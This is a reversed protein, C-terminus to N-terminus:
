CVTEGEGRRRKLVRFCSFRAWVPAIKTDSVVGVEWLMFGVFFAGLQAHKEHRPSIRGVGGGVDDGGGGVGRSFSCSQENELTPGEKQWCWGSFSCDCENEPTPSEESWWWQFRAYSARKRHNPRGRAVVM